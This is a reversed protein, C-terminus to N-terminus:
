DPKDPLLVNPDANCRPPHKQKLQQLTKETLPLIDNKMNDKMLKIENYVNYGRGMERIFKNPIKTIISTTNTTNLCNQITDSEWLEIMRELANQHGKSKSKLNLM